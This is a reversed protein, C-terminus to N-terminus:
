PLHDILTDRGVWAERLTEPRGAVSGVEVPPVSGGSTVLSRSPGVRFKRSREGEAFVAGARDGTGGMDKGFRLLFDFVGSFDSRGM